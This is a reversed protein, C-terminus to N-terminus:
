TTLQTVLLTSPEIRLVMLFSLSLWISTTV